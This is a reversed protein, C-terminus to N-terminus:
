VKVIRRFAKKRDVQEDREKGRDKKKLEPPRDGPDEAARATPAAALGGFLLACLALAPWARESM